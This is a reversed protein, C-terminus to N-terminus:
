TVPSVAGTAAVAATLPGREIKGSRYQVGDAGGRALWWWALVGALVLAAVGGVVAYSKKM